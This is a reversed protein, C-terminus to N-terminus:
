LGSWGLRYEENSKRLGDIRALRAKANACGTKFAASGTNCSRGAQSRVGAWWDAGAREEPVQANLWATWDMMDKAGTQWDASRAVNTTLTTTTQNRPMAAQLDATRADPNMISLAPAIRDLPLNINYQKLLDSVFPLALTMAAQTMATGQVAQISQAATLAQQYAATNTEVGLKALQVENIKPQYVSAQAEYKTKILQVATLEPQIASTKVDNILKELQAATLVPQLVSAKAENELKDAQASATRPQYESAKAENVAKDLQARVLDPQLLKAQAEALAAEYRPFSLALQPLKDATEILAVWVAILIVLWPPVRGLFGSTPTNRLKYLEAAFKGTEEPTATARFEAIQAKDEPTLGAM